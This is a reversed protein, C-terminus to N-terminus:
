AGGGAGARDGCTIVAAPCSAEMRGELAPMAIAPVVSAGFAGAIVIAPLGKDKPAPPKTTPEEM